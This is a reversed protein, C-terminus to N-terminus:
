AGAYEAPNFEVAFSLAVSELFNEISVIPLPFRTRFLLRSLTERDEKKPQAGEFYKKIHAGMKESYLSIDEEQLLSSTTSAALNLINSLKRILLEDGAEDEFRNTKLTAKCFIPVPYGGERWLYYNVDKTSGDLYEEIHAFLANRGMSIAGNGGLTHRSFIDKVKKEIKANPHTIRDLLFLLLLYENKVVSFTYPEPIDGFSLGNHTKDMKELHFFLDRLLVRQTPNLDQLRRIAQHLSAISARRKESASRRKEEFNEELTRNLISKRLGTIPRPM